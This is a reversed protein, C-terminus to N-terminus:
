LNYKVPCFRNDFWVPSRFLFVCQGWYCVFALCCACVENEAVSLIDRWNFVVFRGGVCVVDRACIYDKDDCTIDMVAGVGYGSIIGGDM